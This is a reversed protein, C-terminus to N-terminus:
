WPADGPKTHSRDWEVANLYVGALEGPLAYTESAQPCPETGWGHVM